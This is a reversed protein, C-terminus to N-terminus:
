LKGYSTEINLAGRQYGGFEDDEGGLAACREQEPVACFIFFSTKEGQVM